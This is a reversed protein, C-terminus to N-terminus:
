SSRSEDLICMRRLLKVEKKLEELEYQISDDQSIHKTKTCYIMKNFFMDYEVNRIPELNLNKELFTAIACEKDDIGLSIHWQQKTANHLLGCPFQFKTKIDTILPKSSIYLPKFTAADVVFMYMLYTNATHLVMYYKGNHYVPPTGGRLKAPHSWNWQCHPVIKKNEMDITYVAMPCYFRIARLKNDQETFVWNKEPPPFYEKLFFAINKSKFGLSRNLESINITLDHTYSISLENNMIFFRADEFTACPTDRTLQTAMNVNNKSMDYDLIWISNSTVIKPSERVMLLVKESQEGTYNFSYKDTTKNYVVLSCNYM